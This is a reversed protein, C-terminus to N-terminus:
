RRLFRNVQNIKRFSDNSLFRNRRSDTGEMLKTLALLTCKAERPTYFCRVRLVLGTRKLGVVHVPRLTFETEVRGM